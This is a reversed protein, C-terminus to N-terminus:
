VRSNRKENIYDKVKIKPKWNPTTNKVRSVKIDGKRQPLYRIPKNFMKVLDKIKTPVGSGSYYTGQKWNKSKLLADVIDKINVFDRQCDGYVKLIRDKDFKEVVGHGGDGYVNPLKLIVYNKSLLKIYMEACLKSLGYPSVPNESAVSSTFIFKAKPYKDILRITTMINNHADYWPYKVSKIVNTQAALHYVIDIYKPLNCNMVDEGSKLDIGIVENNKLLEEYLYSGIFGKHGTVLIRNKM